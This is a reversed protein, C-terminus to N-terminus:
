IEMIRSIHFCHGGQTGQSGQGLFGAKAYEAQQDFMPGQAKGRALDATLKAQRGCRQREVDLLQRRCPQHRRSLLAAGDTVRSVEGRHATQDRVQALVTAAGGGAVVVLQGGAGSQEGRAPASRVTNVM